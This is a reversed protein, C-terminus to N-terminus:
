SPESWGHVPESWGKRAKLLFVMMAGRLLRQPKGHQNKFGPHSKIDFNKHMEADLM